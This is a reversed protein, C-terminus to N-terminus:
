AQTQTSGTTPRTQKAAEAVAMATQQNTREAAQKIAKSARRSEHTTSIRTISELQESQM